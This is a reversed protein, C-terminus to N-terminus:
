DLEDNAVERPHQEETHSPEPERAELTDLIARIGLDEAEIFQRTYLVDDGDLARARRAEEYDRTALEENIQRAYFELEERSFLSYARAAAGVPGPVMRAIPAVKKAINNVKRLVPAVKHAVRKVAGGIKSFLSPDRRLLMEIDSSDVEIPIAFAPGAVISAVILFKTLHVM